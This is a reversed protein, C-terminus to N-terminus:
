RKVAGEVFAYVMVAIIFVCFVLAPVAVVWVRLSPVLVIVAAYSIIATTILATLLLVRDQRTM